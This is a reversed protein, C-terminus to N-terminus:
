DKSCVILKTLFFCYWLGQNSFFCGFNIAKFNITIEYTMKLFMLNQQVTAFIDPLSSTYSMYRTQTNVHLYSEVVFLVFLLM